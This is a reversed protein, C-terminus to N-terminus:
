FLLLLPPPPTAIRHSFSKAGNQYNANGNNKPPSFIEVPKAALKKACRQEQDICRDGGAMCPDRIIVVVPCASLPLVQGEPILLSFFSNKKATTDM